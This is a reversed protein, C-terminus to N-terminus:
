KKKSKGTAYDIAVGPQVNYVFVCFELKNDGVSEAEMLVGSAVPNSGRYVPTVRYAVYHKSSSRLYDAVKNEFKLMGGSGSGANMYRTGTILDRKAYAKKSHTNDVGTFMFAILHARNWLYGGPVLSTSYKAQVWGTPYISSISGRSYTPMLKKNLIASATRARGKSDLKSYSEKTKKVLMSKGFKPNNKCVKEYPDGDYKPINYTGRSTTYKIAPVKTTYTAFVDVTTAVTVSFVMMLSTVIAAARCAAKSSKAAKNM